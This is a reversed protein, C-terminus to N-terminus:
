PVVFFGGPFGFWGSGIPRVNFFMPLFRGWCFYMLESSFFCATLKKQPLLMWWCQQDRSKFFSGYTKEHELSEVKRGLNEVKKVLLDHFSM